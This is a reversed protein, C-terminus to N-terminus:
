VDGFTDEMLRAKLDEPMKFSQYDDVSRRRVRLQARVQEIAEDVLLIQEEVYDQYAERMRETEGTQVAVYCEHAIGAKLRQFDKKRDELYSKSIQLRRIRYNRFNTKSGRLKLYGEVDKFMERLEALELRDYAKKARVFIDNLEKDKVKDPHTKKAIKLYFKRCKERKMRVALKTQRQKPTLSQDDAEDLAKRAAEEAELEAKRAEEEENKCERNARSAPDIDKRLPDEGKLELFKNFRERFRDSIEPFRWCLQNLTRGLIVETGDIQAEVDDIAKSVEVLQTDLSVDILEPDQGLVVLSRGAVILENM